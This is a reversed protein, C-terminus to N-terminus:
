PKENYVILNECIAPWHNSGAQIIYGNKSIFDISQLNSKQVTKPINRTLSQDPESYIRTKEAKGM